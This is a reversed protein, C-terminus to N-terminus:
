FPLPAPANPNALRHRIALLAPEAAQALRSSERRLTELSPFDAETGHEGIRAIAAKRLMVHEDSQTALTRALPLSASGAAHIATVRIDVPRATDAATALALQQLSPDSDEGGHWSVLVQIAYGSCQEEKAHAIKFLTSHVEDSLRGDPLHGIRRQANLHQLAYLRMIRDADHVALHHLARTLAEASTTLHLANFASNFIHQRYSANWTPHGGQTIMAFIADEESSDPPALTSAHRDLWEIAVPRTIECGGTDLVHQFTSFAVAPETLDITQAVSPSPVATTIQPNTSDATTTGPDRAHWALWAVVGLAPVLSAACLYRLTPVPKPPM